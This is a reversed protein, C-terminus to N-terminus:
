FALEQAWATRTLMELHPGALMCKVGEARAERYVSTNHFSFVM